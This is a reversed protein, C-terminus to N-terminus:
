TVASAFKDGDRLRHRGSPQSLDIQGTLVLWRVLEGFLFKCVQERVRGVSRYPEPGYPSFLTM